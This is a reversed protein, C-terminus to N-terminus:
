FGSWEPLTLYAEASMEAVTITYTEGVEDNDIGGLIDPWMQMNDIILAAGGDKTIRYVKMESMKESKRLRSVVRRLQRHGDQLIQPLKLERLDVLCM